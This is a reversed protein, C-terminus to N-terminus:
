PQVEFRDYHFGREDSYVVLVGSPAIFQAKSYFADQEISPEPLMKFSLVRGAADFRFVGVVSHTDDWLGKAVIAGGDEMPQVFYDVGPRVGAPLRVVAGARSRDPRTWM